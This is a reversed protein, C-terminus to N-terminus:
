VGCGAVYSSLNRGRCYNRWTVWATIGQQRVITKACQAARSINDTLLESCSIGCGNASHFVGNSCWWRNNIQFIGYDTSGDSNHNTARTNFDSEHKTLCVWNALSIGHYGDMGNAKLARALECRSYVKANAVALLLMFVVTKM